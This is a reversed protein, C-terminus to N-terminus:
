CFLLFLYRLFHKLSIPIHFFYTIYPTLLLFWHNQMTAIHRSSPLNTTQHDTQCKIICRTSFPVGWINQQVYCLIEYIKEFGDHIGYISLSCKSQWIIAVSPWQERAPIQWKNSDSFEPHNWGIYWSRQIDM